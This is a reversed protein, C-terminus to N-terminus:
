TIDYLVVNLDIQDPPFLKTSFTLNMGDNLNEIVLSDVQQNLIPIKKIVPLNLIVLAKSNQLFFFHQFLFSTKRPKFCRASIRAKNELNIKIQRLFDSIRIPIHARCM